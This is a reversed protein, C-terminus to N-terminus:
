PSCTRLISESHSIAFRKCGSILQANMSDANHAKAHPTYEPDDSKYGKLLLKPAIPLVLHGILDPLVIQGDTLTILGWRVDSVLSSDRDMLASILMAAMGRTEDGQVSLPSYGALELKDREETTFDIRTTDPFNYARPPKLMVRIRSRCLLWYDRIADQVVPDDVRDPLESSTIEHFLDETAKMWGAEALQTWLRNACFLGARPSKREVRGSEKHLAWVQGETAFRAIHAKMVLHQRKTIRSDGAELARQQEDEGIYDNANEPIDELDDIEGLLAIVRGLVAAGAPEAIPHYLTSHRRGRKLTLLTEYKDRLPIANMVAANNCMGRASALYFPARKM